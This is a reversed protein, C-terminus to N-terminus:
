YFYVLYPPCPVPEREDAIKQFGRPNQWLFANNCLGTFGVQPKGSRGRRAQPASNFREAFVGPSLM